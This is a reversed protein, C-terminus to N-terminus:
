STMPRSAKQCYPDQNTGHWTGLLGKLDIYIDPMCPLRGSAIRCAIVNDINVVPRLSSLTSMKHMDSWLCKRIPM